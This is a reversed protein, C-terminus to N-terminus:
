WRHREAVIPYNTNGWRSFYAIQIKGNGPNVSGPEDGDNDDDPNDPMDPMETQPGDNGDSCGAFTMAPVLLMLFIFIKKM